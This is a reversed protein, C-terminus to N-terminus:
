PKRADNYMEIIRSTIRDAEIRANVMQLVTLIAGKDGALSKIIEARALNEPMDPTNVIRRIQEINM